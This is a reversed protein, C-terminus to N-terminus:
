YTMMISVAKWIKENKDDVSVRLAKVAKCALPTSDTISSSFPSSPAPDFPATPIHDFPTHSNSSPAPNHKPPSENLLLYQTCTKGSGPPGVMHVRTLALEVTGEKCWKKMTDVFKM